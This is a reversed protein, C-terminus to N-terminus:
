LAQAILLLMGGLAAGGLLLLFFIVWGLKLRWRRTTSAVDRAKAQWM